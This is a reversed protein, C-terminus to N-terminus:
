SHWCRQMDRRKKWPLNSRKLSNKIRKGLKPLRKINGNATLFQTPVYKKLQRDIKLVQHCLELTKYKDALLPFVQKPHKEILLNATEKSINDLGQIKNWNIYGYTGWCNAFQIIYDDIMKERPITYIAEDDYKIGLMITDYDLADLEHLKNKPLISYLRIGARLALPFLEKDILSIIHQYKFITNLCVGLRKNKNSGEIENQLINKLVKYTFMGAPIYQLSTAESQAYQILFLESQVDEPLESFSM